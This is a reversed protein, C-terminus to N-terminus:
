NSLGIKSTHHTYRDSWDKIVAIQDETVLAPAHGCNQFTVLKPQPGRTTMQVATDERLVESAAGRLLLTPIKIADFIPWLDVDEMASTFVAAIAPDYHLRYGGGKDAVVSHTTFAHWDEERMIGFPAYLSRCYREAQHLDVFHPYIKVYAGIRELAAKAIFPGVDNLILRRLPTEPMAALMMGILGGMSTGLWDVQKLGLQALLQLCDGNYLGYNYLAPDPLWASEGRGAMDAAFVDRTASLAEAVATFDRAQRTLGHVCFLPPAASPNQAPWKLVHIRHTGGQHACDFFLSQPAFIM